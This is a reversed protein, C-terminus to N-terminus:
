IEFLKLIPSRTGPFAFHTYRRYLLSFDQQFFIRIQSGVASIRKQLLWKKTQFWRLKRNVLWQAILFIYLAVFDVGIIWDARFVLDFCLFVVFRSDDFYHLASIYRTWFSALSVNILATLQWKCKVPRLNPVKIQSLGFTHISPSGSKYKWM